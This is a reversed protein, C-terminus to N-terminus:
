ATAPIASAMAMAVVDDGDFSGKLPTGIAAFVEEVIPHYISIPKFYFLSSYIIMSSVFFFFLFLSPAVLSVACPFYIFFFLFFFLFSFFPPLCVEFELKDVSIPCTASMNEKHKSQLLFSLVLLLSYTLLYM